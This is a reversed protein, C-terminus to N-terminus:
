PVSPMASSPATHEATGADGERMRVALVAVCVIWTLQLVLGLLNPISNAPSFGESGVVWAQGLHAAGVALALYGVFRPIGGAWSIASGFLLFTVGLMFFQYSRTAWELWRIAEASAFRSAQESAPAGAWIDVAQKLAVGDVAQLVATLSLTVVASIAAFRAVWAAGWSRVTLAFFLAILGALVLGLGVFQGLHVATWNASAAYEAFVAAHSNAPERAPHVLGAAFFVVEGSVLMAAALRLSKRDVM